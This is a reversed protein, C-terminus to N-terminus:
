HRFIHVDVEPKKHSYNKIVQRINNKILDSVILDSKKQDITFQMYKEIFTVKFESLIM